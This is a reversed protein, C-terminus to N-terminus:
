ARVPEKSRTARPEGATASQYISRFKEVPEVRSAEIKRDIDSAKLLPRGDPKYVPIEGRLIWGEITRRCRRAYAAADDVSLWPTDIRRSPESTPLNM